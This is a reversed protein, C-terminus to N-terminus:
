GNQRAAACDVLKFQDQDFATKYRSKLDAPIVEDSLLNVDGDVM